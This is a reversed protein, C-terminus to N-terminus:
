LLEAALQALPSRITKALTIHGYLSRGRFRSVLYSLGNSGADLYPSDIQNIDGTLVIKSGEAVRSLVTKIEHPSLNQSEDVIIWSKALNRGRIHAISEIDLLDATLLYEITMKQNNRSLPAFNDFISQVWPLMKDEKDGPLFGIDQKGVPVVPKTIIIRGYLGEEVTKQLGVALALLTKGTGAQGVLTVAQITNDTLLEIAFQQEKNRAKVGWFAAASHSLKRISGGKNIGLVSAGEASTLLVCQNEVLETGDADLSDASVEGGEHLRQILHSPMTFAVHGSYIVSVDVKDTKYDEAKIGLAMAKVRANIDKSVFVTNGNHKQKYLWALAIIRNDTIQGAGNGLRLPLDPRDAGQLLSSDLKLTGGEKTVVADRRGRKEIITGLHRITQRASHGIHDYRKKLKDLEELAELPIIVENEQFCFLSDPDHILVNTDLIYTKRAM